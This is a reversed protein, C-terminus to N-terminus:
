FIGQDMFDQLFLRLVEPDVYTGDPAGGAELDVLTAKRAASAVELMNVLRALKNMEDRFDRETTDPDTLRGLAVPAM